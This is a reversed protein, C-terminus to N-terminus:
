PKVKLTQGPFIDTSKLNNMELLQDVTLGFKRSISYTTDGKVVTYYGDPTASAPQVAPSEPKAPMDSVTAPPATEPDAQPAAQPVPAEEPTETAPARSIGAKAELDSVRFLLDTERKASEKIIQDFADVQRALADMTELAIALRNTEAELAQVRQQMAAFEQTSVSSRGAVSLIVLVVIIFVACAATVFLITRGNNNLTGTM